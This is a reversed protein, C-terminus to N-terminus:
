TASYAKNENQRGVSLQHSDCERESKIPADLRCANKSRHGTQHSTGTRSSRVLIVVEGKMSMKKTQVSEDTQRQYFYIGSSM